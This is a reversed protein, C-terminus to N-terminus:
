PTFPDAAGPDPPGTPSDTLTPTYGAELLLSMLDDAPVLFLGDAAGGTLNITRFIVHDADFPVQKRWERPIDGPIDTM